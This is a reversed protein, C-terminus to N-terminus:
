VSKLMTHSKKHKKQNNLIYKILIQLEAELNQLKLKFNPDFKEIQM